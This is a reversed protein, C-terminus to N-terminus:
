KKNFIPFRRLRIPLGTKFTGIIAYKYERKTNNINNLELNYRNYWEWISM